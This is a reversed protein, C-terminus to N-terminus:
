KIFYQFIKNQKKISIKYKRLITKLMILDLVSKGKRLTENKGFWEYLREVDYTLITRLSLIVINNM